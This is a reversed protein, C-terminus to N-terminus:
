FEVGDAYVLGHLVKWEAGVLHFWLVMKYGDFRWHHEIIEVQENGPVPYTNLLEIQMESLGDGIRFRSVSSPTGFRECTTSLPLGSYQPVRTVSQSPRPPKATAPLAVPCTAVTAVSPKASPAPQATPKSSETKPETPTTSGCASLLAVSSIILVRV